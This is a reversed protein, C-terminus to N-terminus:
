AAAMEAISWAVFRDDLRAVVPELGPVEMLRRLTTLRRDVGGIADLERLVTPRDLPGLVAELSALLAQPGVRIADVVGALFETAAPIDAPDLGREALLLKGAGHHRAEDVAIQRIVERFHASESGAALDRYHLLGWGELVVAIIALLTPRSAQEVLTGLLRHFDHAAPLAGDPLFAQMLATHAAEDAAFCSYLQREQHSDAELAMRGSYTMAVQEIYWNEEILHRSQRALVAAQHTPSAETFAAVRDLEFFRAPWLAVDPETTGALKTLAARLIAALRDDDGRAPLELQYDIALTM